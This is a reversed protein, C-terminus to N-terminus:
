KFKLYDIDLGVGVNSMDLLLLRYKTGRKGIGFGEKQDEIPFKSHRFRSTTLLFLFYSLSQLISTLDM